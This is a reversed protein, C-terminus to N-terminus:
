ILGLGISIATGIVMIGVITQITNITIKRLLFNGVIIGLMASGVAFILLRLNQDILDKKFFDKYIFLRSADVLTAIVVGTGIFSEKSLNCKILFASRLGGQHGSLGGIFGSLMGGIPLYKKEFSIKQLRPILDFLAFIIMPLSITLKIPTISFENNFLKYTIPPTLKSIIELSIAGLLAFLM